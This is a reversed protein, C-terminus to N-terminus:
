SGEGAGEVRQGGRDDTFEALGVPEVSLARDRRVNWTGGGAVLTLWAPSIMAVRGRVTHGDDTIVEVVKGIDTM